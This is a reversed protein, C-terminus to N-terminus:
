AANYHTLSFNFNVMELNYRFQIVFYNRNYNRMKEGKGRQLFTAYRSSINVVKCSLQILLQITLQIKLTKTQSHRKTCVHFKDRRYSQYVPPQTFINWGHLNCLDVSLCIM